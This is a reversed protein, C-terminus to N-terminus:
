RIEDDGKVLRKHIYMNADARKFVDSCDRDIDSDFTAMGAAFSVKNVDDKDFNDETMENMIEQMIEDRREYDSDRLIAAFEDGGIRFVPSHAFLKCIKKCSNLILVDGKEHGLNDNVHKLANVDCIVLAFEPNKKNQIEIDINSIALNFANRNKIGTLADTNADKLARELLEALDSSKKRVCSLITRVLASVDVPKSVHENMGVEETMHVDEDMVNATMAIISVTGADSRKLARIRKTAEFGDMVPMTIDMLIADISNEDSEEFLEVAIKGNEAPIVKAGEDELLERAIELNIENDEVLLINIGDLRKVEELDEIMDMDTYIDFKLNVSIKSGRNLVSEAEVTGGMMEVYKKMISMGVGSDAGDPEERGGSFGDFLHALYQESMGIGTDEVEFRYKVYSKNKEMEAIKVTIRGDNKTFRIANEIICMFIKRLYFEDGLVPVNETIGYERIIVLSSESIQSQLVNLCNDMFGTITMPNKRMSVMGREVRGMNLVGDIMIMLEDASRNIKEFYGKVRSSDKYHRKGLESIGMIVDIPNRIDYSMRAFFESKTKQAADAMKEAELLQADKDKLANESKGLKDCYEQSLKNSKSLIFVIVFILIILAAILIYQYKVSLTMKDSVNLISVNISNTAVNLFDELEGDMEAKRKVYLKNSLLKKAADKQADADLEKEFESLEYYIVKEPLTDLDYGYGRAALAMSHCDMEVLDDSENMASGLHNYADYEDAIDEILIFAKERHKDVEVETFYNTLYKDNGTEAFYRAQETLISSGESITAAAQTYVIYRNQYESLERGLQNTKVIESVLLVGLAIGIACFLLYSKRIRNIVTDNVKIDM